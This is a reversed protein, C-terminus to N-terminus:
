GRKKLVQDIESRIVAISANIEMTSTETIRGLEKKYVLFMDKLIAEIGTKTESAEDSSNNLLQTYNRLLSITEENWYSVVRKAAIAKQDSDAAFIAQEIERLIKLISDVYGKVTRDSIKTRQDSIEDIQRRLLDRIEQCYMQYADDEPLDATATMNELNNANESPRLKGRKWLLYLPISNEHRKKIDPWIKMADDNFKEIYHDAHWSAWRKLVDLPMEEGYSKLFINKINSVILVYLTVALPPNDHLSYPLGPNAVFGIFVLGWIFINGLIASGEMSFFRWPLPPIMEKAITQMRKNWEAIAEDCSSFTIVSWMSKFYYTNDKKWTQLKMEDLPCVLYRRQPYWDKVTEFLAIDSGTSIDYPYLFLNQAKAYNRLFNGDGVLIFNNWKKWSSM